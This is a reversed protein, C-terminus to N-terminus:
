GAFHAHLVPAIKKLPLRMSRAFGIRQSRLQEGCDFFVPQGTLRQDVHGICADEIEVVVGHLAAAAHLAIGALGCRGEDLKCAEDQGGILRLVGGIGGTMGADRLRNGAQEQQHREIAMATLEVKRKFDQRGCPEIAVTEKGSFVLWTNRGRDFGKGAEAALM